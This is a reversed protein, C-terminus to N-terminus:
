VATGQALAKQRYEERAARIRAHNEEAWFVVHKMAELMSCGLESLAYDVRPPIVAFSTRTIIGDQELRRLTQTLVRPSIDGIARTLEGFRLTRDALTSVILLSWQDGVRDLVDRVPCMDALNDARFPSVEGEIKVATLM